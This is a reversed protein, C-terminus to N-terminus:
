TRYNQSRPPFYPKQIPCKRNEKVFRGYSERCGQQTDIMIIKVVRNGLSELVKWIDFGREMFRTVFSHWLPRCSAPKALGAKKVVNIELETMVAPHRHDHNQHLAQRLQALHRPKESGQLKVGSPTHGVKGQVHARMLQFV